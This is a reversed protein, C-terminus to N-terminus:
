SFIGFTRDINDEIVKKFLILAAHYNIDNMNALFDYFMKKFAFIRKYKDNADDLTNILDKIFMESSIGPM